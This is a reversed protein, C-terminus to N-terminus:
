RWYDYMWATTFGAHAYLRCASENDEQVQLFMREIGRQEAQKALAVLINSALGQGRYDPQTRMGHVSAWGHSFSATGCAVAQAKTKVSAFVADKARSLIRVRHEADLADFGSGMFAQAWPPEAETAIHVDYQTGSEGFALAASVSGIQVCTPQQPKLGLAKLQECVSALGPSRAIRFSPKFGERRYLSVIAEVTGPHVEEHVLPVASSARGVTGDDLGILWEAQEDSAGEPWTLLRQPPVAALTAQEILAIDSSHM